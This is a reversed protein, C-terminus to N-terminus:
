GVLDFRVTLPLRKRKSDTGVIKRFRYHGPAMDSPIQFSRCFGSRGPELMGLRIRTFGDPSAPDTVWGNGDNREISFPEGILAITVTGVNDIRFVAQNGPAYVSSNTRLKVALRSHTVKVRKRCFPFDEAPIGAAREASVVLVLVAFLLVGSM